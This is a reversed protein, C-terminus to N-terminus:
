PWTLREILHLDTGEYRIEGLGLDLEGEAREGGYFSLSAATNERGLALIERLLDDARTPDHLGSRAEASLRPWVEDLHVRVTGVFRGGPGIEVGAIETETSVQGEVNLLLESPLGGAFEMRATVEGQAFLEAPLYPVDLEAGAEVSLEVYSSLEIRGTGAATETQLGHTGEVRGDVEVGAVEGSAEGYVGTGASTGRPGPLQLFGGVVFAGLSGAVVQGGMVLVLAQKFREATAADSFDWWAELEGTVGVELGLADAVKRLGVGADLQGSITVRVSGDRFTETKLIVEAGVTVVKIQGDVTLAHETVSVPGEDVMEDTIRITRIGRLSAIHDAVAGPVDAGRTLADSGLGAFSGIGSMLPNGSELGEYEWIAATLALAQGGARAVAGPADISLAAVQRQFRLYTSGGSIYGIAAQPLDLLQDLVHVALGPGCDVVLENYTERRRGLEDLDVVIRTV